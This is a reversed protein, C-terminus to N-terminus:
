ETRKSDICRVREPDLGRELVESRLTKARFPSYEGAQACRPARRGLSRIDM